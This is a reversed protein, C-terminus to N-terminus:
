CSSDAAHTASSQVSEISDKEHFAAHHELWVRREERVRDMRGLISDLSDLVADSPKKCAVRAALGELVARMEFHDVIDNTTLSAVVAGRNPRLIVLGESHLVQLADRVPMRSVGLLHAIDSTKLRHGAPFHGSLIRSRLFASVEQRASFHENTDLHYESSVISMEQLECVSAMTITAPLAFYSSRYSNAVFMWDQISLELVGVSANRESIRGGSGRCNELRSAFAPSIPDSRGILNIIRQPQPM